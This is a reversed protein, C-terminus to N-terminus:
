QIVLKQTGVVSNGQLLRVLYVGSEENVSITEAFPHSSVVRGNLDLIEIRDADQTELRFHIERNVPNPYMSFKNTEVEAVDLWQPWNNLKLIHLASGQMIYVNGESDLELTMGQSYDVPSNGADYIQSWTNTSRDLFGIQSITFEDTGFLAWVNDNPDFEFEVIEPYPMNTTNFATLTDIFQDGVAISFGHNGALYFTDSNNMFKFDNLYNDLIFNATDASYYNYTGPVYYRIYDSSNGHPASSAWVTGNRSQIRGTNSPHFQQVDNILKVINGPSQCIWVTDAESSIYQGDSTLGVTSWTLDDDYKFVNGTYSDVVYVKNQVFAFERYFVNNPQPLNSDTQGSHLAFTGSADLHYMRSNKAWWISNDLRNIKFSKSGNFSSWWPSPFGLDSNEITQWTQAQTQFVLLLSLCCLAVAKDM